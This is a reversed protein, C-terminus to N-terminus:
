VVRSDAWKPKASSWDYGLQNTKGKNPNLFVYMLKPSQFYILQNKIKSNFFTLVYINM